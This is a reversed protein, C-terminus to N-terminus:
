LLRFVHIVDNTLQDTNGTSMDVSCILCYAFTVSRKSRIESYERAKTM